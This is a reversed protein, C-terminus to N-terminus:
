CVCECVCTRVCVRVCVCVSYVALVSEEGKHVASAKVQGWESRQFRLINMLQGENENRRSCQWTLLVKFPLV